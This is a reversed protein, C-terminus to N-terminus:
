QLNAIPMSVTANSDNFYFNASCQKEALSKFELLMVHKHGPEFKVFAGAALEIKDLKQMRVRGQIEVTEHMESAEACAFRINKLVVPAARTNEISGYAATMTAGAVPKAIYWDRFVIGAHSAKQGCRVGLLFIPLLLLKYRM